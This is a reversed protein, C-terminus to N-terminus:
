KFNVNIPTVICPDPNSNFFARSLAIARPNSPNLTATKELFVDIHTIGFTFNYNENTDECNSRMPCILFIESYFSFFYKSFRFSSFIYIFVKYM